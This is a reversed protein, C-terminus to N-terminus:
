FGLPQSAGLETHEETQDGGAPLTLKGLLHPSSNKATVTIPPLPLNDRQQKLNDRLKHKTEAAARQAQLGNSAQERQFM